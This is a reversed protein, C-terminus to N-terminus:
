TAYPLGYLGDCVTFKLPRRRESGWVSPISLAAGGFLRSRRGAVSLVLLRFLLSPRRCCTLVPTTFKAAAM